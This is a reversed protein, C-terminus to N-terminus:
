MMVDTMIWLDFLNANVNTKRLRTLYWRMQSEVPRVVAQKICRVIVQQAACNQKQTGQVRRPENWLVAPEFIEEAVIGRDEGPLLNM